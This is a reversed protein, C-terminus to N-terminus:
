SSADIELLSSLRQLVAAWERQVEGWLQNELDRQSQASFWAQNRDAVRDKYGPGGGWQQNCEVWFSPDLKLANTFVTQGMIQAKRLFDDFAARLVGRAQQILDTADTYDPNAEMTQTIVVFDNVLPELAVVALRRAGYGLQHQYSLNPWEGQRRVSARVTSAYANQLQRMLDDHIHGSLAPIATHQDAWTKMMRAASLLVERVQEKEYNLSLARASATTDRLNQRFSDRTREICALITQQLKAPEDQFANFFNVTLKGLGLPQLAMAVQEGKLMYGDEDCEVHTGAEDKVAKAEGPRPLVVVATHLDIDQVGVYKARELLARPATGPADNFGSCLLALTHPEDLHKELDARAATRDIGRTDILIVTLDTSGLLQRPVVIEIRSPLTFEPHRGNNVQEYMEKLWVLPPEGVSADYWVERRDRRHLNMRALVEVAYERHSTFQAALEKADDHRVAKGDLGKERRIRLGALNRVAREIEKAIGEAPDSDGNPDEWDSISKDLIQEAFDQVHLRIEADPCPDVLLGYVPGTRLYVDCLTIGGAGTELVTTPPGGDVPTTELGTLKSILTTKGIGLSGIFAVKHERGLILKATEQLSSLYEILRRDFAQRIEPRARLENLACCVQEAEWLLDQDPHDLPPRRLIQWNRNLVTALHRADPTGIAELLTNLEDPSLEREGSEVRSLVAASWTIREALEAQKTATAERLQALRRGLEQQTFVAVSDM